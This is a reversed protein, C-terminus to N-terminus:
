EMVVSGATADTNTVFDYFEYEGPPLEIHRATRPPVVVHLDLEDVDFSRPFVPDDNRFVFGDQSSDVVLREPEVTTGTNILVAEGPQAEVVPRTLYLSVNVVTALLVVLVAIVTLVLPWRSAGTRARLVAVAATLALATAVLDIASLTYMLGIGVGQLLIAIVFSHLGLNLLCVGMLVGAATCPRQTAMLACLATVVAFVVMSPGVFRGALQTVVANVALVLAATRLLWLWTSRHTSFVDLPRGLAQSQTSM